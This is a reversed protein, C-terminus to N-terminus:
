QPFSEVLAKRLARWAPGGRRAYKQNVEIQIGVYRAPPFRERM